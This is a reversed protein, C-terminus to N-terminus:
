IFVVPCDPDAVSWLYEAFDKCMSLGNGNKSTGKCTVWSKGPMKYEVYSHVMVNFAAGQECDIFSTFRQRYQVNGVKWSMVRKEAARNRYFSYKYAKIVHENRGLIVTGSRDCKLKGKRTRRIMYATGKESGDKTKKTSVVLCASCDKIDANAMGNVAAVKVKEPIVTGAESPLALLGTILTIAIMIAFIKKM